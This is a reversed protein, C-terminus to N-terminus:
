SSPPPAGARGPASSLAGGPRRARRRALLTFLGLVEFRGYGYVQNQYLEASSVAGASAAVSSPVVVLLLTLWIRLVRARGTARRESAGWSGSFSELVLGPRRAGPRPKAAVRARAM